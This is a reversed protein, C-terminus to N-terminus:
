IAGKGKAPAAAPPPRRAGSRPGGVPARGQARRAARREEGARQPHVRECPPGQQDAVSRVQDRGARAAHAVAFLRHQADADLRPREIARLRDAHSEPRGAEDVESLDRGPAAAGDPRSPAGSRDSEVAVDRRGAQAGAAGADARAAQRDGQDARRAQRDRDQAATAARSTRSRRSSSGMSSSSSWIGLVALGISLSVFQRQRAQRRQERHPLLNIRIM